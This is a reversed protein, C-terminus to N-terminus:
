PVFVHLLGQADPVYEFTGGGGAQNSGFDVLAILPNTAATGPQTDSIVLYRAGTFTATAWQIAACSLVVIARGVCEWTVSGDTVTQGVVTPWTPQTGSTTGAVAARYLFTNGTTPRVVRDVAVATSAAWQTSWSNAATTTLTKSTLTVGGATYGGATSLENTADNAYDNATRDPTYTATHLTAKITDTDWDIEKNLLKSIAPAYWLAM